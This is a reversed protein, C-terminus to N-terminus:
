YSYACKEAVSTWVNIQAKMGSYSVIICKYGQFNETHLCKFTVACFSFSFPSSDMKLMKLMRNKYATCLLFNNKLQEDSM